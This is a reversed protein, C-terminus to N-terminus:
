EAAAIEADRQKQFSLEAKAKELDLAGEWRAVVITAVANGILNTVSRAESLFRDIGLLLAIGAVPITNLSSLTAALTVFGGGTVTAAGKSTVMFLALLTIEQMLTLQTNTAQAIFYAAITLYIATGDLNFSYGSPVVLGVVSRACGLRELKELLRPLASESSSTGLVLFIEERLFRLLSWLRLGTARVILGLVIAVFLFCTTWVCLLVRLLPILASSGFQGMTFAIAGFAGIPAVRMILGIMAFLVSGVQELGELVPRGIPGLMALAVGFLIAIVLVQLIDGAAFAGIFTEPILHLFFDAVTQSKATNTYREISGSDLTAPNANIGAGPQVLKVVGVGILLALTTVVEFYVLAKWGVRGLQKMDGIGAIGAVVTVFIIPAVMMRILRIFGDGLPRMQRGLDPAVIGFVAGIVVAFLVQVYLSTWWRSRHPGFRQPDPHSHTDTPPPHSAIV